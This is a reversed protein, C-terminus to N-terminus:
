SSELKDQSIERILIPAETISKITYTAGAHNLKSAGQEDTILGIAHASLAKASKMDTVGDGIVVTEEATVNLSRLAAALHAPDPKVKAVAERTIVAEFFPKLRFRELILNASKEGNITFIALKLGMQRLAKLMETVGPLLTTERAAKLEHKLAISLAHQQLAAFEQENKGNNRMYVKSKKLMEFISEHISFISAPLGQHSLFQMVEARVTRYDVNFEALTGDLDFVVAKIPM